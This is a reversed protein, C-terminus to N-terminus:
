EFIEAVSLEVGLIEDILKDKITYTEQNDVSKNFIFIVETEPVVLWYSEIGNAFCCRAKNMLESLGQSPSSIEIVCLPLKSVSTKNIKRKPKDEISYIAIDPIIVFSEKGNPQIYSIQINISLESFSIFRNRFDRFFLGAINSQLYSHWDSGMDEIAENEDNELDDIVENM